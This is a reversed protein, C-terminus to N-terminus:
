RLLLRCLCLIERLIKRRNEEGQKLLPHVKELYPKTPLFHTSYELHVGSLIAQGKGHFCQVIAASEGELDMYKGLVQTRPQGQAGIFRCGGNFYVHFPEEKKWQIYAAEVGSPTDPRYKGKGYAPGQAIGPFFSLSRPGLVEYAGGKEFEIASCGFYAGACIGLYNGGKEVFARIRTTGPGDLLRHYFIDRGGPIVLLSTKDEWGGEIIEQAGIRQIKGAFERSLSKIVQKLAMGDVGQDVYVLIQQM